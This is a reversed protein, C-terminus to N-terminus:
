RGSERADGPRRRARRRDRSGRVSGAQKRTHRRELCWSLSHEMANTGRRDSESMQRALSRANEDAGNDVTNVDIDRSTASPDLLPSIQDAIGASAIAADISDRQLPSHNRCLLERKRTTVFRLQAEMCRSSSLVTSSQARQWM